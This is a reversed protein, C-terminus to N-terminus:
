SGGMHGIERGVRRPSHQSGERYGPWGLSRQKCDGEERRLDGTVLEVGIDGFADQLVHSSAQTM